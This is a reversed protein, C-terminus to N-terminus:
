NLILMLILIGPKYRNFFLIRCEKSMCPSGELNRWTIIVATSLPIDFTGVFSYSTGENFSSELDSKSQVLTESLEEFSALASATYNLRRRAQRIHLLTRELEPDFEPLSPDPQSRTM